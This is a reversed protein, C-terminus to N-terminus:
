HKENKDETTQFYKKLIVYVGRTKRHLIGLKVLQALVKNLYDKGMECKEALMRASEDTHYWTLTEQDQCNLLLHHLVKDQNKTKTVLLVTTGDEKDSM